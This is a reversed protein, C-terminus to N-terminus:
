NIPPQYNWHRSIARVLKRYPPQGNEFSLWEGDRWSSYFWRALLALHEQRDRSPHAPAALAAALDRLRADMPRMAGDEPAVRFRRAPHLSGGTVFWLEVCDPDTSKTVAVGGLADIGAALGDRRKWLAEIREAREHQRGAEEFELEASLRDRAALAPELLSRGGTSLFEIVRRTESAYEEPGVVQQCPRLCMNMEGYICGPHAPSPELDEQCRRLQFLDLMGNQFEEAGARTRFPGFYYGGGGAIRNTVQARPFPNSLVVKVYAPMRLKTVTLYTDPFYRRALHYFLLSSELRSATPWYEVRQAISRLSLLRSPGGREGLLRLLRKRLMGTRALYPERGGAHIVFVAPTNSLAALQAEPDSELVIIRPEPLM